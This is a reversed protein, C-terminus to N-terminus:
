SPAVSTAPPAEVVVQTRREPQDQLYYTYTGPQNFALSFSGNAAIVRSPREVAASTGAPAPLEFVLTRERNETNLWTVVTGLPVRAEAPLTSGRLALVKVEVTEV